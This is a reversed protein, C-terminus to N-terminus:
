GLLHNLLIYIIRVIIIRLIIASTFEDLLGIAIVIVSINHNIALFHIFTRNVFIVNNEHLKFMVDFFVATQLLSYFKPAIIRIKLIIDAAVPKVLNKFGVLEIIFPKAELGLMDLFFQFEANITYTGIRLRVVLNATKCLRRFLVSDLFVVAIDADLFPFLFRIDLIGMWVRSWISLSNLCKWRYPLILKSM